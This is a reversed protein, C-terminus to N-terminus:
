WDVLICTYDNLKGTSRTYMTFSTVYQHLLVKQLRSREAPLRQGFSQIIPVMAVAMWLGRIFTRYATFCPPETQLITNKSWLNKAVLVCRRIFCWVDCAKCLWPFLYSSPKYMTSYILPTFEIIKLLSFHPSHASNDAYPGLSETSTNGRGVTINQRCSFEKRPNTGPDWNNNM